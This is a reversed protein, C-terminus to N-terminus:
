LRNYPTRLHENKWQDVVKDNIQENDWLKDIADEAKQAFYRSLMEKIEDLMEDNKVYSMLDLIQLQAPNLVTREM